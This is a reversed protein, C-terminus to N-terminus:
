RSPLPTNCRFGKGIRDLVQWVPKSTAQPSVNLVLAKQGGDCDHVVAKFQLEIPRKTMFADYTRITGTFAAASGLPPTTPSLTVTTKTLSNDKSQLSTMNVRVLGTYYAELDRQLTAADIVPNGSLWWLHLNTSM